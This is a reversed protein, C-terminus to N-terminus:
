EKIFGPCTNVWAANNSVCTKSNCISDLTLSEFSLEHKGLQNFDKIENKSISDAIYNKLEGRLCLKVAPEAKILKKISQIQAECTEKDQHTSQMIEIVQNKDNLVYMFYQHRWKNEKEADLFLCNQIIRNSKTQIVHLEDANTHFTKINYVVLSQCSLIFILILFLTSRIKLNQM